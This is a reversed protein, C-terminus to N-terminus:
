ESRQSQSFTHCGQSGAEEGFEIEEHHHSKETRWGAGSPKPKLVKSKAGQLQFSPADKPPTIWGPGPYPLCRWLRGPIGLECHATLRGENTGVHHLLIPKSMPPASLSYYVGRLSPLVKTQQTQCATKMKQVEPLQCGPCSPPVPSQSHYAHM